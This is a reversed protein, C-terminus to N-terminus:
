EEHSHEHHIDPMHAHSHTLPEHAHTHSHPEGGPDDPSHSHHHHEDHVHLHDHELRSHTHSHEHQETLHLWLGAMMLTAALGFFVTVSEHLFIISSAAGIFPAASFYASTRAAGVHRLGFIYLVLSLGYGFFGILLSAASLDMSPLTGGCMLGIAFNVPGACLGKLGAIQVPDAASIKRTLNNDIGWCLCALIVCVAGASFQVSLDPRVSLAMAGLTLLIMGLVVRRNAHERFVKWAILAGFAGELNLLLSAGSAPTTLLGYMLLLPAFVGGFLIAAFLWGYDARKLKAEVATGGRARSILRWLSLGIGSGLYFLGALVFPQVSGLLAKALPVTAGFLAAAALGYLAGGVLPPRHDDTMDGITGGPV